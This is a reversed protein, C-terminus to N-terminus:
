LITIQSLVQQVTLHGAVAYISFTQLVLLMVVLYWSPRLKLTSDHDEKWLTFCIRRDTYVQKQQWLQTATFNM